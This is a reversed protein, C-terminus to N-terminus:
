SPEESLLRALAARLAASEEPPAQALFLGLVAAPDEIGELATRMLAAAHEERSTTAEYRAARGRGDRQRRLWGKGVLVNMVTLVTTYAGARELHLTEFVERV